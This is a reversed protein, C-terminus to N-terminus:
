DKNIVVNKHAQPVHEMLVKRKRRFMHYSPKLLNDEASRLLIKGTNWSLLSCAFWFAPSSAFCVGRLPFFEWKISKRRQLIPVVYINWWSREGQCIFSIRTVATARRRCPHAETSILPLESTQSRYLRSEHLQLVTVSAVAWASMRELEAISCLLHSLVMAFGTRGREILNIFLLNGSKELLKKQRSIGTEYIYIYIKKKREFM